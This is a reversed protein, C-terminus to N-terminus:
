FNADEDELDMQKQIKVYEKDAKEIVAPYCEKCVNTSQSCFEHSPLVIEFVRIHDNSYNRKCTQCPQQAHTQNEKRPKDHKIEAVADGGSAARSSKNMENIISPYKDAFQKANKPKPCYRDGGHDKLWQIALRMDKFTPKIESHRRLKLIDPIFSKPSQQYTTWKNQKIAAYLLKSVRRGRIKDKITNGNASPEIKVRGTHTDLCKREPVVNTTETNTDLCKATLIRSGVFDVAQLVPEINCATLIRSGVVKENENELFKVHLYHEICNHGNENKAHRCVGEIWGMEILAAKARKVRELSIGMGKKIYMLTCKPTYTHQWNATYAIFSYVALIDWKWTEERKLLQDFMMKSIQLNKYTQPPPARKKQKPKKSM